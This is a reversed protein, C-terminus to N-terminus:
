GGVVERVLALTEPALPRFRGTWRGRVIGERDVLFTEPVGLTTFRRVVRERPDVLIEFDIDFDRLFREIEPEAGPRDVSVGVVRLRGDFREALEQLEPMEERCPACWTAWVNLLIPEGLGTLIVSDGALSRAGYEPARDGVRLPGREGGGPGCAAALLLAFVLAARSM